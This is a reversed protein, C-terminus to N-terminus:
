FCEKWSGVNLIRKPCRAWIVNLSEDVNQTTGHLCKKLLEEKGLDKHSFVPAIIEVFAPDISLWNNITVKWWWNKQRWEIKRLKYDQKTKRLRFGVRKQVHGIHSWAPYPNSNCIDQFADGIFTYRLKNQETWPPKNSNVIICLLVFIVPLRSPPCGM